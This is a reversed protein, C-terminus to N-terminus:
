IRGGPDKLAYHYAQPLCSNLIRILGDTAEVGYCYKCSLFDWDWSDPPVRFMMTLPAGDQRLPELDICLSFCFADNKLRKEKGKKKKKKKKQSL